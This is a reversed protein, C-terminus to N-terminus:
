ARQLIRSSQCRPRKETSKESNQLPDIKGFSIRVGPHHFKQGIQSDNVAGFLYRSELLLHTPLEAAPNKWITGHPQPVGIALKDPYAPLFATYSSQTASL